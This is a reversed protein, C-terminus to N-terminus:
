IVCFVILNASFFRKLRFRRKKSSFTLNSAASLSCYFLAFCFAVSHKLRVSIKLRSDFRFESAEFALLSKLNLLLLSILPLDIELAYPKDNSCTYVFRVSLSFAFLRSLFRTTHM